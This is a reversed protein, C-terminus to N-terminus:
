AATLVIYLADAHPLALRLLLAAQVDCSGQMYEM